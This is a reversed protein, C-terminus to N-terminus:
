RIGRSLQKYLEQALGIGKGKSIEKALEEDHMSQMIDKAQSDGVLSDGSLTNRMEKLMMQVFVSEFDQCVKKLRDQDTINNAAKKTQDLASNQSSYISTNLNSIEM